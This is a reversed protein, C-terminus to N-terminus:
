GNGEAVTEEVPKEFATSTLAADVTFLMGSGAFEPPTIFSYIGTETIEKQWYVYSDYTGTLFSISITKGSYDVGISQVNGYKTTIETLETIFEATDTGGHPLAEIAAILNNKQRSLNDRVEVLEKVAVYEPQDLLNASEYWQKQIQYKQIPTVAMVGCVVVAVAGCLVGNRVKDSMNKKKEFM